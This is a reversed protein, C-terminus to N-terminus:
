WPTCFAHCPSILPLPGSVDACDSRVKRLFLNSYFHEPDSRVGRQRAIALKEAEIDKHFKTLALSNLKTVLGQFSEVLRSEESSALRFVVVSCSYCIM